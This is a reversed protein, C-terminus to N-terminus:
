VLDLTETNYSVCYAQWLGLMNVEDEDREFYKVIKKFILKGGGYNHQFLMFNLNSDASIAFVLIYFTCNFISLTNM